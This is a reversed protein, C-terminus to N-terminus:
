KKDKTLTRGGKQNAVIVKMDEVLEDLADGQAGSDELIKRALEKTEESYEKIDENNLLANVLKLAREFELMEEESTKGNIQIEWKYIHDAYPCKQIGNDTQKIEIINMNKEKPNQLAAWPQVDELRGYLRMGYLLAAQVELRCGKSRNWGDCLFVADCLLLKKM